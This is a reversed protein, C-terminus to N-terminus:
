RAFEPKHLSPDTQQRVEDFVAGDDGARQLQKQLAAALAPAEEVLAGCLRREFAM